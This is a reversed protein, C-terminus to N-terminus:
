PWTTQGRVADFWGLEFWRAEIGLDLARRAQVKASTHEGIVAYVLAASFAVGPNEPALRLAETIAAVAEVPQDLHAYAQAKVMEAAYGEGAAGADVQTLVVRYGELAAAVHGSLQQCDALNLRVLPNDPAEAMAEDLRACAREYDGALMLAVGLNSLEALGPSREVLQEYLRVARDLDGSSMEIQALMSLSDYHDPVLALVGELHARASDARGSRYELNALGFLVDWSPLQQVARSALEIAEETRGRRESLAARRMLLRPDGAALSELKTLVGAAEDLRDVALLIDFVAEATRRDTPRLREADRALRVAADRDEERREEVWLIRALRAALLNAELLDPAERRLEEVRGLLERRSVGGARSEDLRAFEYYRRYADATAPSAATALKGSPYAEELHTALAGAIERWDNAPVPFTRTWVVNANTDLRRLQLQCAKGLCDVRSSLVEDAALARALAALTPSAAAVPDVLEAAPSRLEPRMSVQEFLSARVASQLFKAEDGDIGVVVAPPVVVQRIPPAQPGRWRWAYAGFGAATVLVLMIAATRKRPLRAQGSSRPAIGPPSRAPAPRVPMAETQPLDLTVRPRSPLREATEALPTQIKGVLDAVAAASEPRDAPEKQLLREVLDSLAEPIGEAAQSLPVPREFLVKKITSGHSPGLFPNRGALAEYLLVGLAYLDTRADAPEGNLQEPAMARMTGVSVGEATLASLEADLHKALGFDLIKAHGEQSVLVNEAKLDRHIIGRQHAAALGLAIERALELLHGLGLKRDLLAHALTHGEVLEMVLWDEGDHEVLDYIQVIAPHNLKAIAKAERRLRERAKTFGQGVTHVRKLAVWRELREDYARYVSGMGGSGLLPGLRYPGIHQPEEAM